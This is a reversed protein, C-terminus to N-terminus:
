FLFYKIIPVVVTVAFTFGLLVGTIRENRELKEIRKEFESDM